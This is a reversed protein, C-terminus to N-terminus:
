VANFLTLSFVDHTYLPFKLRVKIARFNARRYFVETGSIWFNLFVFFDLLILPYVYKSLSPRTRLNAYVLTCLPVHVCTWPICCKGRSSPFLSPIEKVYAGRRAFEDFSIGNQRADDQSSVCERFLCSLRTYSTMAFPVGKRERKALIKTTREAFCTRVQFTALRQKCGTIAM